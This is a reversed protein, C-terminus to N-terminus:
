EKSKLRTMSKDSDFSSLNTNYGPRAPTELPFDYDPVSWTRRINNWDSILIKNLSDSIKPKNTKDHNSYREIKFNTDPPSSSITYDPLFKPPQYFIPPPAPSTPGEVIQSQGKFTEDVRPPLFTDSIQPVTDDRRRSAQQSQPLFIGTEGAAKSAPDVFKPYVPTTAKFNSEFNVPVKKIPINEVQNKNPIDPPAVLGVGFPNESTPDVKLPYVPTTAKFNSRFNVQINESSEKLANIEEPANPGLIGLNFPNPSTPDVRLPYVPTTAKFNSKFNVQINETDDKKSSESNSSIPALLGVDLPNPSTPDVKLPYVPTTAKFKSEFNVVIKEQNTQVLNQDGPLKPLALGDDFGQKLSPDVESPYVPTTAKFKSDFNVPVRNRNQNLPKPIPSITTPRPKIIVEKPLNNEINRNNINIAKGVKADRSPYSTRFFSKQRRQQDINSNNDTDNGYYTAWRSPLNYTTASTSSGEEDNGEIGVIDTINIPKNNRKRYIINLESESPHSLLDPRPTRHYTRGEIDEVFPKERQGILLNASYDDESKSCNVMYWHDCILMRQQFLTANPCQYSFKRGLGDCMHYVQCGLSVDAYYGTNRGHCSFSSAKTDIIQGTVSTSADDNIMLNIFASVYISLFFKFEM